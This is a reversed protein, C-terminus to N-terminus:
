CYTVIDYGKAILSDIGAHMTDEDRYWFTRNQGKPSICHVSNMRDRHSAKSAVSRRSAPRKAEKYQAVEQKWDKRSILEVPSDGYFEMAYISGEVFVMRHEHAAEENRRVTYTHGSYEFVDGGRLDSAQITTTAKTNM